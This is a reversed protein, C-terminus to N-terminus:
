SIKRFSSKFKKYIVNFYYFLFYFVFIGSTLLIDLYINHPHSSCVLNQLESCKKFFNKYGIGIFKNEKWIYFAVSFLNAHGSGYYRKDTNIESQLENNKKNSEASKLYNFNKEFKDYIM